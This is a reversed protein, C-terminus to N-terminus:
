SPCNALDGYEEIEEIADIADSRGLEKAISLWKMALSKNKKCGYHEGLWMAADKHDPAAAEFFKIAQNLDQKVTLRALRYNARHSGRNAADRLLELGKDFESKSNSFTLRIGEDAVLEPDVKTPDEHIKNAADAFNLYENLLPKFLDPSDASASQLYGLYKPNVNVVQGNQNRFVAFEALTMIAGKNGNEAAINLLQEARKNHENVNGNFEPMSFSTELM